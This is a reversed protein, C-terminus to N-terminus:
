LKKITLSPISLCVEINRGIFLWLRRMEVDDAKSPLNRRRLEAECDLGGTTVTGSVFGDASISISSSSFDMDAKRNTGVLTALFRLL